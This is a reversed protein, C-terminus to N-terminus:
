PGGCISGGPLENCEFACCQGGCCPELDPCGAPETGDQLNCGDTADCVERQCPGSCAARPGAECSGSLNCIGLACVDDPVVCPKPPYECNGTSENCSGICDPTFCDTETGLVCDGDQCRGTTCLNGPEFDCSGLINDIRCSGNEECVAETCQNDPDGCNSDVPVGECMGTDPNCTNVLCGEGIEPCEVDACLDKGPLSTCAGNECVTNESCCVGECCESECADDEGNSGNPFPNCGEVSDCRTRKCPDKPLFAPCGVSELTCIGGECKTDVCIDTVLEECDLNTQCSCQETSPNCPKSSCGSLADCFEDEGCCEGKCCDFECEVGPNPDNLCPPSSGDDCEEMCVGDSCAGVVCNSLNTLGSCDVDACQDIDSKSAKSKSAKSKGVKSAKTKLFRHCPNIESNVVVAITSAAIFVYALSVKM